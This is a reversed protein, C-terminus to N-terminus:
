VAGGARQVRRLQVDGRIAWREAAPPCEDMVALRELVRAAFLADRWAGVELAAEYSLEALSRASHPALHAAALRAAQHLACALAATDNRQLAALCDSLAGAEPDEVALTAALYSAAALGDMSGLRESGIGGGAANIVFLRVIARASTLTTNLEAADRLCGEGDFIDRDAQWWDIMSIM